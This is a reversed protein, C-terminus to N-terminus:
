AVVVDPSLKVFCLTAGWQFSNIMQRKKSQRREAVIQCCWKKRSKTTKKYISSVSVWFLIEDWIWLTRSVVNPVSCLPWSCEVVLSRVNPPPERRDAFWSWCSRSCVTWCACLERIESIGNAEKIESKEWIMGLEFGSPEVDAFTELQPVLRFWTSVKVDGARKKEESVVTKTCKKILDTRFIM